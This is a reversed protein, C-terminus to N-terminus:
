RRRSATPKLLKMAELHRRVTSRSLGTVQATGRVTKERRWAERVQKRTLLGQQRAHWGREPTELGAAVVHYHAGQRTMGVVRAAESINRTKAYTRLLLLVRKRDMEWPIM